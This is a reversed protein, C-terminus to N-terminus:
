ASAAHSEETPTLLAALQAAIITAAAAVTSDQERGDRVEFALVGVCGVPALVPVAVAATMARDASVTCTAASRFANAIANDDRPHIPPLRAVFADAYGHSAVPTLLTTGAERCWVMVGVAHLIRATDALATKFQEWDAVLAFRTCLDALATLDVDRPLSLTAPSEPVAHEFDATTARAREVLQPGEVASPPPASQDRDRNDPPASYSRTDVGNARDGRHLLTPVATRAAVILRQLRTPPESHAHLLDSEKLPAGGPGFPTQEIPDPHRELFERVVTEPDLGIARAYDRVFARRFIGKPWASLDDSELGQLLSQKIKTQAAIEQLTLRRAERQAQLRAGFGADM